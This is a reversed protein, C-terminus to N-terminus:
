PDVGFFERELISDNLNLGFEPDRKNWTISIRSFYNPDIFYSKSVASKRERWQKGGIGERGERHFSPFKNYGFTQSTRSAESFALSVNNM